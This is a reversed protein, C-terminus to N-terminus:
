HKQDKEYRSKKEDRERRFLICNFLDGVEFIEAKLSLNLHESKCDHCHAVEDKERNHGFSKCGIKHVVTYPYCRCAVSQNEEGFEVSNNNFGVPPSAFSHCGLVIVDQIGEM